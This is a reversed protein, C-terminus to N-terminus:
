PDGEDAPSSGHCWRRGRCCSPLCKLARESVARGTVSGPSTMIATKVARRDPLSVIVDGGSMPPAARLWTSWYLTAAEVEAVPAVAAEVEAAEVEAEVVVEPGWARRSGDRAAPISIPLSVDPTRLRM